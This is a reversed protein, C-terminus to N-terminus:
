ANACIRSIDTSMVHSDPYFLKLLYWVLEYKMLLPPPFPGIIGRCGAACPALDTSRISLHPFAFLKRVRGIRGLAKKHERSFLFSLLIM